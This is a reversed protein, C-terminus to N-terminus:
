VLFSHHNLLLGGQASLSSVMSLASNVPRNVLVEQLMAAIAAIRLCHLNEEGLM